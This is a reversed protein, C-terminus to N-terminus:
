CYSLGHLKVGCPQKFHVNLVNLVRTQDLDHGEFNFNYYLELTKLKNDKFIKHRLRLFNQKFITINKYMFRRLPHLDCQQQSQQPPHPTAAFTSTHPAKTLTSACLSPASIM